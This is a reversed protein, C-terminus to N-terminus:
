SSDRGFVQPIRLYFGTVWSSFGQTKPSMEWGRSDSGSRGGWAKGNVETPKPGAKTGEEAQCDEFPSFFGLDPFLRVGTFASAKCTSSGM